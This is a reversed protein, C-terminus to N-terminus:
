RPAMVSVSAVALMLGEREFEQQTCGRRVPPGGGSPRASHEKKSKLGGHSGSSEAGETVLRGSLLATLALSKNGSSLSFDKRSAGTPVKIGM